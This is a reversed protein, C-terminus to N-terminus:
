RRTLETKVDATLTFNATGYTVPAEACSFTTSTSNIIMTHNATLIRNVVALM